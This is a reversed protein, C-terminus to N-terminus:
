SSTCGCTCAPLSINSNALHQWGLRVEVFKELKGDASCMLRKVAVDQVDGRVGRLVEGYPRKGQMETADDPTVMCSYRFALAMASQCCLMTSVSAAVYVGHQPLQHLACAAAGVLLWETGDDRTCIKIQEPAILFGATSIILM